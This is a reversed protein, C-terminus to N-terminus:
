SATQFQNKKSAMKQIENPVYTAVSREVVPKIPM